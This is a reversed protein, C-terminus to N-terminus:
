RGQIYAFEVLASAVQELSNPLVVPRHLTVAAAVAISFGDIEGPEFVRRVDDLELLLPTVIEDLLLDTSTTKTTTTTTITTTSSTNSGSPVEGKFETDSLLTHGLSFLGKKGILAINNDKDM